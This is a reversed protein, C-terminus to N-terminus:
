KGSRNGKKSTTTAAEGNASLNILYQEIARQHAAPNNRNAVWDLILLENYVVSNQTLKSYHIGAKWTGNERYRRLTHPSLGILAATDAKNLWRM